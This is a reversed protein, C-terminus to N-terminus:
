VKIIASLNFGECIFHGVYGLQNTVISTKGIKLPPINRHNYGYIWHSIAPTKEMLGSLELSFAEVTPDDHYKEDVLCFSPLHHTAVVFRKGLAKLAKTLFSLCKGHLQSFAEATLKRKGYKIFVFNNLRQAIKFACTKSIWAWLTTLILDTNKNLPIVSNYHLEVNPRIQMVLGDEMKAFDYDGYFEHNGPVVYTKQFNDAAWDWFGSRKYSGQGLLGIDGALVLIDGALKLPHKQMHRNNEAFELHLDSAYQIEM